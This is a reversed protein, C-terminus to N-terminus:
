AARAAMTQAERVAVGPLKCATGLGKVYARLRVADVQLLGILEPNQAVHMVLMHLNTVEFDIRTSTSIGKAKPAEVVQVPAVVMEATAAASTAVAQARQAEATAQAAAAENGAELQKKAEAQKAQAEYWAAQTEAALRDREAQAKAEAERRAADAIRAQENSWALMKKKLMTEAEDLVSAPGRFLDNIAKLATNLPVTIGTRQAEIDKQRTKISRLEDSALGYDENSAITFESIFSLAQKARGTLAVADPLTLTAVPALIPNTM